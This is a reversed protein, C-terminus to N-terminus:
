TLRYLGGETKEVVKSALADKVIRNFAGRGMPTAKAAIESYKIPTKDKPFAPAVNLWGYKTKTDIPNSDGLAADRESWKKVVSQGDIEELTPVCYRKGRNDDYEGITFRVYGLRKLKHLRDDITRTSVGFKIAANEMLERATWNIGTEESCLYEYLDKDQLKRQAGFFRPTAANSWQQCFHEEKVAVHVPNLSCVSEAPCFADCNSCTQKTHIM